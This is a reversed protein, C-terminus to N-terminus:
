GPSPANTTLGNPEGDALVTTNVPLDALSRLVPTVADGPVLAFLCGGHGSGSLKAGFAGAAVVLQTCADILETSCRVEDRLLGHYASVLRGAERFDVVTATLASSLADVLLPAERAYTIMGPERAQFRGRKSALVARTTRRQRTDILIVPVGLTSALRRVGPVEGADVRNVGGHACALFDMWGAGSGLEGTEARRALRCVTDVDLAGGSLGALAAVASLTLAASSSLGAAIPLDTTATLVTGAIRSAERLTVRAAAQLHDLEDGDYHREAARQAPLLRTRHM